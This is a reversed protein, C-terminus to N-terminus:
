KDLEIRTALVVNGTVKGKVQVKLGLVLDDARRPLSGNDFVTNSDWKVVITGNRLTFTQQTKDLSAIPGHLEHADDQEQAENKVEVKSAVLTGNVVTGEVEVRAGLVPTGQTAATAPVSVKVGNVEFDTASTLKTVVGELELRRGETLVPTLRVQRVKSAVITTPNTLTGKVRVLMGNTVGNPLNVLSVSPDQVTIGNLTFTGAAAGQVTGTLRVESTAPIREVRTAKLTSGTANPIGHIEVTGNLALSGLGSVNAGDFVTGPTVTVVVGLVTLQNGAVNIASIPGQVFSRGAISSAKGTKAGNDREGEVEIVMGLKLDADKGNANDDDLTVTAASDDIRVGNLIVSGFGSIPASFTTGTSAPTVTAAGDGGGGGCAVLIATVGAVAALWLVRIAPVRRQSETTNM